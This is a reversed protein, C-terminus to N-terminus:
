FAIFLKKESVEHSSLSKPNCVVFYQYVHVITLQVGEVFHISSYIISYQIQSKM